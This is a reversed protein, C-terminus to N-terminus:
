NIWDDNTKRPKKPWTSFYSWFLYIANQLDEPYTERVDIEQLISDNTM